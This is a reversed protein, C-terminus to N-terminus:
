FGSARKKKKPPRHLKAPRAGFRGPEIQTSAAVQSLTPTAIHSSTPSTTPTMDNLNAAFGSNPRQSHAAASTAPRSSWPSTFSRSPDYPARIHPSHSVPLNDQRKRRWALTPPAPSAAISAPQSHSEFSAPYTSLAGQSGYVGSQSLSPAASQKRSRSRSRSRSRDETSASSARSFSRSRARATPGGLRSARPLRHLGQFPDVYNYEDPDEGLQWEALLLRATSSTSPLLAELEAENLRADAGHEQSYGRSAAEIDGSRLPAFFALGVSGIHPPPITDGQEEVFKYNGRHEFATWNTGQRQQPRQTPAGEDLIRAQPRVFVETELALDLSMEQAAKKISEQVMHRANASWRQVSEKSALYVAVDDQVQSESRDLARELLDGQPSCPHDLLGNQELAGDRGHELLLAAARSWPAQASWLTLSSHARRLDSRSELLAKIGKRKVEEDGGLKWITSWPRESDRTRRESSSGNSGTANYLHRLMQNLSLTAARVSGQRNGPISHSDVLRAAAHEIDGVADICRKEANKDRNHGFLSRYLERHDLIKTKVSSLADISGQRSSMDTTDDVYLHTDLSPPLVEVELELEAHCSESTESPADSTMALKQIQLAGRQSLGFALWQSGNEGQLVKAAHTYLLSAAPREQDQASCPFSPLLVPASDLTYRWRVPVSSAASDMQLLDDAQGEQLHARVVYCSVVHNRRSSLAVMITGKDTEPLVTLSLTPDDGRHHETSFLPRLSAQLDFWFITDSSCVALLQHKSGTDTRAMSCFKARKSSSLCFSSRLFTHVQPLTASGSEPDSNGLRIHRLAHRSLLVLSSDDGGFVLRFPTQGCVRLEVASDTVPNANNEDNGDNQNETTNDAIAIARALLEASVRHVSVSVPASSSSPASAPTLSASFFNQKKKVKSAPSNAPPVDLAIQDLDPDPQKGKQRNLDIRYLDINGHRDVAAALTPDTRHFCLDQHQVSGDTAYSTQHLRELYLHSTGDSGNCGHRSRLMLLSTSTHTRVAVLNKDAYAVIQLIPTRHKQEPRQAPFFLLRNSDSARSKGKAQTSETQPQASPPSTEQESIRVELQHLLLCDRNHGGICAIAYTRHQESIIPGLLAVAQADAIGLSGDLEHGTEELITANDHIVQSLLHQPIDIDPYYQRLFNQATVIDADVSSGAEASTGPYLSLDRAAAPPM